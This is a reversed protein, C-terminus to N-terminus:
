DEKKGIKVVAYEYVGGRMEQSGMVVKGEHNTVAGWFSLVEFELGEKYGEGGYIREGKKKCSTPVDGETFGPLCRVIDGIEIKGVNFKRMKVKIKM